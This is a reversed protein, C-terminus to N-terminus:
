LRYEILEKGTLYIPAYKVSGEQKKDLLLRSLDINGINVEEELIYCRYPGSPNDYRLALMQENSFIHSTHEARYAGYIIGKDADCLIVFRVHATGKQNSKIAGERGSGCRVNYINSYKGVKQKHGNKKLKYDTFKSFFGIWKLM